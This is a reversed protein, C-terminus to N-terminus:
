LSFGHRKSRSTQPIDCVGPEGNGRLYHFPVSQLTHVFDRAINLEERTSASRDDHLGIISPLHFRICEHVVLLKACYFMTQLRYRQTTFSIPQHETPSENDRLLIVSSQLSPPMDDLVSVFDSYLTSLRSLELQDNLPAKKNRTNMRHHTRIAVILHAAMSFTRRFLHFGDLLSKEFENDAYGPSEALLPVQNLGFEKTDLETDFLFDFLVAPRNKLCIASSDSMVLTWFCNRLLTSELPEYQNLVHESHLRMAHALMSAQGVVQSALGKDCTHQQICTAQLMRIQLSSSNPHGLDYDEYERLTNRSACLFLPGMVAGRPIITEGHIFTMTGCVATLLSFSRLVPVSADNLLIHDSPLEDKFFEQAYARLSPEHCIPLNPFSRQFFLSLCDNVLQLVTTNPFVAIIGTVLIRHLKSLSSEQTEAAVSPTSISQHPEPRPLPLPSSPRERQETPQSRIGPRPGKPGRRRVPIDYSCKQSSM